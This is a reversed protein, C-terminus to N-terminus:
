RPAVVLEPVEPDPVRRVVRRGDLHVGDRVDDPDRAAAVVAERDLRVAGHPRPAPILVALDAVAGLARVLKQRHLDPVEGAHGHDARAGVVAHREPAVAGYPGPALVVVALEGVAGLRVARRGHLDPADRVDDVDAVAAQVAKGDLAVARGPGPAQVGVALQAVAGRRVARR